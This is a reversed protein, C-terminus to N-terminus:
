PMSDQERLDTELDFSLVYYMFFVLEAVTGDDRM